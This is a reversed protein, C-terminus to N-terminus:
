PPIDPPPPRPIRFPDRLQLFKAIAYVLTVTAVCASAFLRPDIDDGNSRVVACIVWLTLTMMGFFLLASVAVCADPCLGPVASRWDVSMLYLLLLAVALCLAFLPYRVVRWFRQLM